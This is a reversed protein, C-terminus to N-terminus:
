RKRGRGRFSLPSINPIASRKSNSYKQEKHNTSQKKKESKHESHSSQHFEIQDITSGKAALKIFVVYLTTSCLQSYNNAPLWM